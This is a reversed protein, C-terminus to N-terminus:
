NKFLLSNQNKLIKVILSSNTKTKQPFFILIM